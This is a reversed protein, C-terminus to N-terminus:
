NSLMSKAASSLAAASAGPGARDRAMRMVVGMDKMSTANAAEVCEAVLAAVEAEGLQPPLFSEIVGMEEREKAAAEPEGCDEYADVPHALLFLFLAHYSQFRRFYLVRHSRRGCTLPPNAAAGVAAAWCMM